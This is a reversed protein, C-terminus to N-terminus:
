GVPQFATVEADLIRRRWLGPPFRALKLILDCVVGSSIVM